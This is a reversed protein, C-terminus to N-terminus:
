SDGRIAPRREVWIKSLVLNRDDGAELFGDNNVYRLFVTNAGAELHVNAVHIQLERSDVYKM